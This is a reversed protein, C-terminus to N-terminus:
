LKARIKARKKSAKALPNFDLALNIWYDLEKGQNIVDESILIYSNIQKGGMTMQEWGDKDSLSNISEPNIRLTIKDKMIGICMKGNVMFVLGSFMIKEEVDPLNILKEAIRNALM